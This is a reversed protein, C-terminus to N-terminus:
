TREDLGFFSRIRMLIAEQETTQRVSKAGEDLDEQASVLDVRRKALTKSIEDIVEPRDKIIRQFSEKGLRYCEADTLAVVDASRPAGTMMGMEGFFSPAEIIAVHADKHESHARVEAKGSTLIYLWHAVAGQRTMTEGSTFPAYRLHSALFRREENTLSRFIDTSEIALLRRRSLPDGRAKDDGDAKDDSDENPAFFATSAPRALPISARRLAAYIRARVASSTPDDVALDTLWYRVAYYAFSDRTEKALDMCIAHPPPTQSVNPIPATQLAENVVSIVQTPAYRFDVNFYVWMRHQSPQGARRGLIMFSQALLGSNPVVITDWDRTEIATHRWRIDKVKGQRGNELQIWDGVHLSGDIQIAIGGLINGLTSQLSVVLIASAIASAGLISAPNFGEDILIFVTAALYALGVILDSAMAAAQMKIAPLLVDFVALAALNVATFAELTEAAVHTAHWLHISGVVHLFSSVVVTALTLGFLIVVRRIRRRESPAFRTVLYAVFVLGGAILIFSGHVALRTLFESLM